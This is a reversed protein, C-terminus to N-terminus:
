ISNSKKIESHIDALNKYLVLDINRTHKFDWNVYMNSEMAESALKNGLGIRNEDSYQNFYYMIKGDYCYHSLQGGGSWESIFLKCKLNNLYSAYLQLNDVFLLNKYESLTEKLYNINNNFIIIKVNMKSNIVDITNRLNVLDYNYRHHIVVYDKDNNDYGTDIYSINNLLHKFEETYFKSLTKYNFHCMINNKNVDIDCGTVLHLNILNYGDKNMNSFDESTIVNKFISNYLFQRDKLTVIIDDRSIHNQILMDIIIYRTMHIEHGLCMKSYKKTYNNHEFSVYNFSHDISAIVINKIM